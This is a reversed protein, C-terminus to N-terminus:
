VEDQSRHILRVVEKGINEVHKIIAREAAAADRRKIARLVAELERIAEETRAPRRKPHTLAVVGWRSIRAHQMRLISALEPSGAVDFLVEYFQARTDIIRKPEHRRHAAVLAALARQLKPYHEDEQKEVFLRVVVAELHCRVFYIDQVEAASLARVVSGRNPHAVVLGESELQRLAERVVTRSVSASESLASERLAAGPPLDNVVIASRLGDLVQQRLRVTNIKFDTVRSYEGMQEITYLM